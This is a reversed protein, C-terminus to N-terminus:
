HTIRTLFATPPAHPAGRKLSPRATYSRTSITFLSRPLETAPSLSLPTPSNTNTQTNSPQQDSIM